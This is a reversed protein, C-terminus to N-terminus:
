SAVEGGDTRARISSAHELQLCSVPDLQQVAIERQM